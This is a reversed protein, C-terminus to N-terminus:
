KNRQRIDRLVDNIPRGYLKSHRETLASNDRTDYRKHVLEPANYLFPTQYEGSGDRWAAIFQFRKVQEKAEEPTFSPALVDKLRAFVDLSSNNGLHWNVGSSMLVDTFDKSLKKFDYFAFIPAIKYKPGEYLMRQVFKVWGITEYQHPENYVTFTRGGCGGLKTLFIVLTLWHMITRVAM